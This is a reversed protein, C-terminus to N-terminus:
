EGFTFGATEYNNLDPNRFDPVRMFTIFNADHYNRPGGLGDDYGTRIVTVIDKDEVRWDAYQFGHKVIDPHHLLVREIKWENLDPSSVLALTNRIKGARLTDLYGIFDPPIWNALSWYRSSVSDFRITFKKDCGGPVGVYGKEPNFSATKGEEDINIMAALDHLKSGTRTQLRIIDVLEGDPTVVVNGEIWGNSGELWDKQYEIANSLTWSSRQLLDAELPASMVLALKGSKGEVVVEIGRWIRGKQVVVPVPACHYKGEAILGSHEDAPVTWTKGGDSSKQIVLDNYKAKTGVIYIEGKHFFLSAWHQTKIEALKTWSIGKDTSKYILTYEDEVREMDWSNLDLSAVYDGGPLILISPSGLYNRTSAPNHHIVTGPVKSLDAVPRQNTNCSSSLVSLGILLFFFRSVTM